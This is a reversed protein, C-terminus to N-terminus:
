FIPQLNLPNTIKIKLIRVQSKSDDPKDIVCLSSYTINKTRKRLGYLYPSSLSIGNHDFDKIFCPVFFPEQFLVTTKLLNCARHYRKATLKNISDTISCMENESYPPESGDLAAKVFRHIVLDMFRRIPSTFQVYAPIQLSYHAIEQPMNKVGSTFRASNQIYFWRIMALHHQPHLSETGIFSKIKNLDHSEAAAKLANFLVPIKSVPSKIVEQSVKKDSLERDQDDTPQGAERTHQEIADTNEESCEPRAFKDFVGKFQRFYFSSKVAEENHQFWEKLDDDDPPLQYRFPTLEPYKEILFEAVGQNALIMFEEVLRHAEFCPSTCYPQSNDMEFSYIGEQKRKWRLNKAIEHLILITGSIKDNHKARTAKNQQSDLIEQVQEYSM